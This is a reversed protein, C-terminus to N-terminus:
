FILSIVIIERYSKAPTFFETPICCPDVCKSFAGNIVCCSFYSLSSCVGFIELSIFIWAQHSSKLKFRNCNFSWSCKAGRCFDYNILDSFADCLFCSVFPLCEPWDSWWCFVQGSIVSQSSTENKNIWKGWKEQEM